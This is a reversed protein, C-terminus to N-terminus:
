DGYSTSFTLGPICVDPNISFAYLEFLAHVANTLLLGNQVSNITGETTPPLSIWHSFNQSTWSSECALLFVHAVEFGLWVDM